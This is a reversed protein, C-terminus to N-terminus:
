KWLIFIYILTSISWFYPKSIEYHKIFWEKEEDSIGRMQYDVTFETTGKKYIFAALLTILWLMFMPFCICFMIIQLNKM